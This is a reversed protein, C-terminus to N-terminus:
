MQSKNSLYLVYGPCSFVETVLCRGLLNEVGILATLLQDAIVTTEPRDMVLLAGRSKDFKWQSISAGDVVSGVNSPVTKINM